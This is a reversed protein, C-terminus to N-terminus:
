YEPNEPPLGLKRRFEPSYTAKDWNNAQKIQKPTINKSEGFDKHWFKTDRLNASTLDASTLDASTLDADKLDAGSLKAYSLDAGSLKAYSLDAGSLKAYSLDAGSLDAGSLNANWLQAGSLGAGSLNANWLQAGSFNANILNAGSLNADILNAGSLNADSLNANWLQADSLNAYSLNAKNLEVKLLNTKEVNIGSLSFGEKHLRELALRVVGSQSGKGDNVVQWAAFIDQEREKSFNSIRPVEIIFIVVAVLFGIKELIRFLDWQDLLHAIPEVIRKELFLFPQIFIIKTLSKRKPPIYRGSRKLHLSDQKDSPLRSSITRKKTKSKQKIQNRSRLKILCTRFVPLKLWKLIKRILAQTNKSM